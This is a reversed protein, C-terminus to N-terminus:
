LEVEKKDERIPYRQDRRDEEAEDLKCRDEAKELDEDRKSIYAKVCCFIAIILLVAVGSM